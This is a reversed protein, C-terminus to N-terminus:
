GENSLGKSYELYTAALEAEGNSAVATSLREWGKRHFPDLDVLVRLTEIARDIEGSALELEALRLLIALKAPGFGLLAAFTDDGLTATRGNSTSM